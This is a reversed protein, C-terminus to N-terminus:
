YIPNLLDIKLKTNTILSVKILFESANIPLVTFQKTISNIKVSVKM